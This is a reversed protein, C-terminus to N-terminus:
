QQLLKKRSASQSGTPDLISYGVNILHDGVRELGAITSTFYPSLEVKCLGEALRTYHSAALSRKMGDVQNELFSYCGKRTSNKTPVSFLNLVRQMRPPEHSSRSLVLFM